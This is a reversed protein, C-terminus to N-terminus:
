DISYLIQKDIKISKESIVTHYALFEIGHKKAKEIQSFYVSDTINDTSVVNVDNRQLIYIVIVRKNQKKLEILINMQDSSRKTVCDPFYAINNKVWHVNKVEIVTNKSAFDARYTQSNFKFTVESKFDESELGSIQKSALLKSVLKNPVNTNTGIWIDNIKIAEWTYSLTGTNKKSIIASSGAVLIDAMKGTNVCHATFLNDNQDKFFSFFRKERKIFEVLLPNSFIYEILM